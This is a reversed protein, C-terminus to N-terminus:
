VSSICDNITPHFSSFIQSSVYRLIKRIRKGIAFNRYCNPPLTTLLDNRLARRYVVGRITWKTFCIGCLTMLPWLSNSTWLPKYSPFKIHQVTVSYTHISLERFTETEARFTRPLYRMVAGNDWVGTEWQRLCTPRQSGHVNHIMRDTNDGKVTMSM